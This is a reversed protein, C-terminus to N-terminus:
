CSRAGSWAREHAASGDRRRAPRLRAEAGQPRAQARHDAPVASQELLPKFVRYEDPDVSGQVVTEGLGYSANIVVVGPFGTETDVSFMVGAGGRDSRVMPQVGASLAVRIQDIGNNRAIASPATRTSRRSAARARRRAVGSRRARQPLDGAPRRLEGGALGRGHRELARCRGARTRPAPAASRRYAARIADAVGRPMTGALMADRVRKGAQELPLRRAAYDTMAAAIVRELDNAALFATYASVETAFGGVARVGADALESCYSVSRRTRAASARWTACRSPRSRSSTAAAVPRRRTRGSVAAGGLGAPATEGDGRQVSRLYEVLKNIANRSPRQANVDGGEEVWFEYGWVPMERTGHARKDIGRGDIVDRILGAPFEGYRRAIRTLDPVAVNLSRSVPGDGSAESGHCSACFRGFLEEGSYDELTVADFAM